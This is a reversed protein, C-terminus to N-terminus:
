KKGFKKKFVIINSLTNSKRIRNKLRVRREVARNINKEKNDRRNQLSVLNQIANYIRESNDHDVYELIMKKNKKVYVSEEFDNEIYFAIQNVLKEEDSCIDGLFTEEKKRLIGGSFFRDFDFHYFINPKSMFTIDNTVSSYDTICLSASILLQQVTVSGLSIVDIYPNINDLFSQLYPQMRYHPYFSIKVNNDRCIEILKQNNLLSTWKLFYETKEFDTLPTIWERWTPMILINKEDAEKDIPLKDFRSLGTVFIEDDDYGFIDKFMQKESYSSVTVGHFPYDYFKKHYEAPKRGMVGHQLFYRVADLNETIKFPLIYDLDHSGILAQAKYAFQINKDSNKYVYNNRYNDLNKEDKSGEEIVYIPIIEDTKNEMLYEFFSFGTDQATDPREGILWIPKTQQTNITNKSIDLHNMIEIKVNGRPTLTLYFIKDAVNITNIVRDKKYVYNIYGLKRYAHGGDLFEEIYFDYIGTEFSFDKLDFKTVNRTDYYKVDSNSYIKEFAGKGPISQTNLKIKKGTSREVLLITCETYESYTIASNFDLVIQSGEVEISNVSRIIKANKVKLRLYNIGAVSWGQYIKGHYNFHFVENKESVHPIRQLLGDKEIYFDFYKLGETVDVSLTSYLVKYILNDDKRKPQIREIEKKNRYIVLNRKENKDIIKIELFRKEFSITVDKSDLM